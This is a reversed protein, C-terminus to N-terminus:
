RESYFTKAQANLEEPTPVSSLFLIRYRFITSQGTDLSYNLPAAKPDFGHVGLPNVAFLGYDRAHWYTPFNPNSTHDLIAITEPKGPEGGVAPTTGSSDRICM